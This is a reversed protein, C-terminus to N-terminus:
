LLSFATNLADLIEKHWICEQHLILYPIENDTMILQIYTHYIKSSPESILTHSFVINPGISKNTDIQTFSHLINFNIFIGDGEKLILTTKGIQIEVLSYYVVYLELELYWHLPLTQKPYRFLEDVFYQIPFDSNRHAVIDMLNTDIIPLATNDM